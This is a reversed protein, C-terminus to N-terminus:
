KRKSITVKQIHNEKGIKKKLKAVGPNTAYCFISIAQQLCHQNERIKIIEKNGKQFLWM